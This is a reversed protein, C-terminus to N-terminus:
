FGTEIFLRVGVYDRYNNPHYVWRGELGVDVNKQVEVSAGAGVSWVPSFFPFVLGSQIQGNEGLRPMALTDVGGAVYVSASGFDFVLRPMVGIGLVHLIEGNSGLYFYPNYAGYVMLGIGSSPGLRLLNDITVGLTIEPVIKEYQEFYTYGDNDLVTTQVGASFRLAVTPGAQATAAQAAEPAVERADIVPAIAPAITPQETATSIQESAIETAAVDETEESIVDETVPETGDDQADAEIAETEIAEVPTEATEESAEESVAEESVAEELEVPVTEEPVAEVEVPTEEAAETAEAAPQPAPGEIELTINIEGQTQETQSQGPTDEVVEEVAEDVVVEDAPLTVPVSDPISDETVAADPSETPVTLTEEQAVALSFPNVRSVSWRRGNYSQQVYLVYTRGEETNDLTYSMESAADVVTWGGDMEGDVQYRFYSVRPDSSTWRWTISRSAAFSGSICFVLLLLILVTKRIGNKTKKKESMNDESKEQM